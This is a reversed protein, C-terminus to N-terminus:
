VGLPGADVGEEEGVSEHGKTDTFLKMCVEWKTQNNPLIGPVVYNAM